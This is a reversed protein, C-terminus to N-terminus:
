QPKGTPRPASPMSHCRMAEAVIPKAWPPTALTACSHVIKGQRYHLILLPEPALGAHPNAERTNDFLRLETLQPLRVLNLRSRNYRKRITEEPISHGGRVARARVRRIHLDAGELGIFWIRVEVGKQLAIQLLGPITRGGLTTEFAFDLRERIARELLRKGQHWAVSNAEVQSIEPNLARIRSAAIDPNFYDVHLESLMAGVISSKGAGNTGALVYVSSRRGKKPM